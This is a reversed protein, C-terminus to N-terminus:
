ADDGQTISQGAFLQDISLKLANVRAYNLTYRMWAGDRKGQVLGSEVLIKMHYSLTPQTIQFEELIKCACLEGGTLLGIIKLRTEDALAKFVPVM